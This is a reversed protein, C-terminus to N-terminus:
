RPLRACMMPKRNLPSDGSPSRKPRAAEGRLLQSLKDFLVEKQRDNVEEVAKIVRMEYGYDEATKILARIDKPFCSGGYGCGPYLFSGASARIAGGDWPAGHERRGGGTRVPQGRREHLQHPYGADCNSAYKTMEASLIDM